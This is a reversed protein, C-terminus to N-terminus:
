ADAQEDVNSLQRPRAPQQLTENKGRLEQGTRRYSYIFTGAITAVPAALAVLGVTSHGSLIVIIGGVIMVLAIFFYFWMGLQERKTFDTFMDREMDMRHGQHKESLTLIRDASGPMIREWKGVINPHPILGSYHEVHLVFERIFEGRKEEPIYEILEAPIFSDAQYDGQPLEEAQSEQDM